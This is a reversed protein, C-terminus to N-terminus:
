SNQLDLGKVFDVFARVAKINLSEQHYFMWTRRVIPKGDQDTIDIKYLDKADSLTSRPLIGYGLSRIVMEKCTDAKDVEMGILPPESYNATWWNDILMKFLYDTQYDIRPLHPLDNVNIKNKSAICLTEEFLLHKQGQWSYDGRVFGIHVDQNYVSHFIDRSWGTTVQFEVKPYEHKFLELIGPLKYKTFYNSVGLRLTGVVDNDMNLVHEKIERLRLLMEEACKAIYEGQPTFQVGRRGRQVIEVGFEKEIQRLRKTLAPQSIFLQQATKTINKQHYLEQLIRWDRDEM